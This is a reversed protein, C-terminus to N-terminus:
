AADAMNSIREAARLKASRARINIKNKEDSNKIINKTLLNFIIKKNSLNNIASLSHRYPNAGLGSHKKLFSKVIKDELSHFSIVVLRAGPVLLDKTAELAKKIEELENNVKIRFAQFTRTAPDIKKNKSYGISNRVIEALELTSEITKNKKYNVIAKAIKRSKPEEGFKYIIDSLTKEDSKEIIEAATPGDLGMRMDLPGDYRFSFGRNANDLQMSSVGLDFLIGGDIQNVGQDKLLNKLNGINGEILKFDNPYKKEFKKSYLKIKPDRDIAYLKCKASSLIMSSHGGAGFTGDVYTRGEKINLFFKVEDKLVPIHDKNKIEKKLYSTL